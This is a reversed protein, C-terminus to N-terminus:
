VTGCLSLAPVEVGSLHGLLTSMCFMARSTSDSADLHIMDSPALRTGPRNKQLSGLIHFPDMEDQVDKWAAELTRTEATELAAGTSKETVNSQTMSSAEEWDAEFTRADDDSGCGRADNVAVHTAHSIPDASVSNRLLQMCPEAMDRGSKVSIISLKVRYKTLLAQIAATPMCRHILSPKADLRDIKNGCLVIPFTPGHAARLEIIYNEADRLSVRRTLDFMVIAADSRMEALGSRCVALSPGPYSSVITGKANTVHYYSGKSPDAFREQDAVDLFTISTNGKSTVISTSRMVVGSTKEYTPKFEGRVYREIWASKGVGAAGMVAVTMRNSHQM